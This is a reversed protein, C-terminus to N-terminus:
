GLIHKYLRLTLVIAEQVSTHNQPSLTTDSTGTLIGADTLAAVYPGAWSSIQVKDIYQGSIDAVTNLRSDRGSQEEVYFAARCLITAIEERTANGNPVFNYEDKGNVIGAAVAKLASIDTTDWFTDGAAPTLSTGTLKETLNVALEAIQERTIGRRYGTKTHETTIGLNTAEELQAEAWAAPIDMTPAPHPESVGTDELIHSGINVASDPIKLESLSSCGWFADDGITTLGAPLIINTLNSCGEFAGQDITTLSSPFKLEVLNNCNDFAYKGIRNLTDPLQVDIVPSGYDGGYSFAYDGISTVGSEVVIKTFAHSDWPRRIHNGNYDYMDGTGQIRMVGDKITFILAKGCTGTTDFYVPGYSLQADAQITMFEMLVLMLLYPFINAIKKM